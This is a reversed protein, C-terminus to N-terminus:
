GCALRGEGGGPQLLDAGLLREVPEILIGRQHGGLSLEVQGPGALEQVVGFVVPSDLLLAIPSAAFGDGRGLGVQHQRLLFDLPGFFGVVAEGASGVVIGGPRQRTRAQRRGAFVAIRDYAPQVPILAMRVVDLLRAQVGLQGHGLGLHGVGPLFPLLELIAGVRVRDGQSFRPQGVGFGM